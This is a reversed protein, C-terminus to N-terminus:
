TFNPGMLNSAPAGLPKCVLDGITDPNGDGSGTPGTGPDSERIGTIPRWFQYFYKSEWVAIGADAMAVNTLALLRALQIGTTGKQKALQVTIQNYLRPPACLSPTGDYAWFLGIETQEPTRETATDIGDGGLRKAENFAATYEASDMPPPPPVRYQSPSVMVFPTVDGWHAGLALPHQSVPDQRWHGADNSPIFDINVRPEPHQSGDDARMALIANAARQGNAVGNAKLQGDSILDLDESLKQDFKATQSPWLAVLTDHAAQAVAADTSAQGGKRTLGVYSRFGGVISNLAEFMAIHVIAIARAARCPGVQEGFVRNEGPAVPTHDLGSADISISNWRLITITAIPIPADPGDVVQIGFRPQAGYRPGWYDAFGRESQPTNAPVAMSVILVILSQVILKKNRRVTM